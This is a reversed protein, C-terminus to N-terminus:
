FLFRFHSSSAPTAFHRLLLRPPSPSHRCRFDVLMAYIVAIYRAKPLVKGVRIGYMRVVSNTRARCFIIQFFLPLRMADYLLTAYRFSFASAGHADCPMSAHCLAPAAVAASMACLAAHIPTFPLRLLFVSVISLLSLPLPSLCFTIKLIVAIPPM